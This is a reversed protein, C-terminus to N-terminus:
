KSLHFSPIFMPVNKQYERFQDGFYFIMRKEEYYAGIIFYGICCVATILLDLSLEPRSIFFLTCFFYLPHRCYRYPGKVTLSPIEDLHSEDEENYYARTMQEIGIFERFDVYRFTWIVGILSVAQFLIFVLDFPFPADYIVVTITPAFAVFFYVLFCSLANYILRYFPM